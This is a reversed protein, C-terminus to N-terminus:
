VCLSCAGCGTSMECFRSFGYVCFYNVFASFKEFHGCCVVLAIFYSKQLLLLWEAQRGSRGLFYIILVSVKNIFLLRQLCYITHQETEREREKERQTHRERRVHIRRLSSSYRASMLHAHVQPPRLWQTWLSLQYACCSLRKILLSCTKRGNVSVLHSTAVYSRSCVLKSTLNM